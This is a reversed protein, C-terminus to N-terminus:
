GTPWGYESLDVSGNEKFVVGEAELIKQQVLGGEGESRISIRGQANIVRQWPVNSGYPLSAMAYGVNRASCGGALKAVRGYTSVRGEPISRVVEYIREYMSTKKNATAM